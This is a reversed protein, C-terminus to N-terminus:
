EHLEPSDNAFAPAFEDIRRLLTQVGGQFMLQWGIRLLDAAAEAHRQAALLLAQRRLPDTEM